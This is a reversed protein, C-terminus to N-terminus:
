AKIYLDALSKEKNQKKNMIIVSFIMISIIFGSFSIIQISNLKQTHDLDDFKILFNTTKNGLYKSGNFIFQISFESPMRDLDLSKYIIKTFLTGNLNTKNFFEKKISNNQFIRISISSNSLLIKDGNFNYYYRLEVTVESILEDKECQIINVVIPIRNVKIKYSFQIPDYIITDNIIFDLENEGIKLEYISSLNVDIKGKDDTIFERSFVWTKNNKINLFVTQNILVSNNGTKFFVVSFNVTEGYIISNKFGMLECSLRSKLITINVTQKFTSVMQVKDDFFHYLKVYLQTTDNVLNLDMDPIYINWSEGHFGTDSYEFSNWILINSSNYIQVQLFSVENEIDYYLEWEANIEIYEYNYYYSKDTSLSCSELHFGLTIRPFCLFILLIGIIILSRSKSV